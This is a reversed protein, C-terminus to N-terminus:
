ELSVMGARFDITLRRNRLFNAGLLGTFPLGAPVAHSLVAISEWVHGIATMRQVIFLPAYIVSNVGAIRVTSRPETLDYGAVALAAPRLITMAAGTDVMLRARVARVPGHIEADVIVVGRRPDFAVMAM